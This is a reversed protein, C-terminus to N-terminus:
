FEGRSSSQRPWVGTSRCPLGKLAIDGEAARMSDLRRCTVKSFPCSSGMWLNYSHRSGSVGWGEAIVSKLVGRIQSRAFDIGALAMMLAVSVMASLSLRSPKADSWVLFFSSRGNLDEVRKVCPEVTGRTIKRRGGPVWRASPV